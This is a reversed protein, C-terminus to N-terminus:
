RKLRRRKKGSRGRWDNRREWALQHKNGADGSADLIDAFEEASAFTEHAIRADGGGGSKGALGRLALEEEASDDEESDSLHFFEQALFGRESSSSNQRADSGM